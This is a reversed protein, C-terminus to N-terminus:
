AAREAETVRIFVDELSSTSATVSEIWGGAARISDIVVNAEDRTATRIEAHDAGPLVSAGMARIDALAQEPVASATIEYGRGAVLSSIKGEL